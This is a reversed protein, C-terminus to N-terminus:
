SQKVRLKDKVQALIKTHTTPNNVLFETAKEKGQGLHGGDYNYWSGGKEIIGQEVAMDILSGVLDFGRDFMLGTETERFPPALKNKVAKIRVLNGVVKDGEKIASIRRIDLRLSAYFKLARGGTTTEPTGFMVGIKERIQNIFILAGGSKSVAATLKRMAQSMLRAHLGMNADGMDGELEAKPVLAAVSDVVIVGFAQSRVLSETIELAQEGNDPQSVYLKDVDVGLRKAWNPDFAHEADVFACLEGARQSEAIVHLTLTTKGGSEPGYIETIRNRPIGGIRLVSYDLALIGSPTSPWDIGVKSGLNFIAGKGHDKEIGAVAIEAAKLKQAVTQPAEVEIPM